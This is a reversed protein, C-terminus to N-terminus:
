TIQEAVYLAPNDTGDPVTLTQLNGEPARVRWTGGGMDILTATIRGDQELFWAGVQEVLVYDGVPTM